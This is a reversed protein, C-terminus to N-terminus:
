PRTTLTGDPLPANAHAELMASQRDFADYGWIRAASFIPVTRALTLCDLFHRRTAGMLPIYSGRYTNAIIADVAEVGHLPAIEGEPAGEEARELLYIRDLPIPKAEPQDLTPVNYKDMDDFSLEYDGATRGSAELAERWLRLRPIGNHALPRGDPGITVVCVDDALIRYGRDLFWSAITSKGAGSHGMFAVARGDIEVANAHLPLLARQHLIAAFASGLLYLRLNRESGGPVPEVRLDRGDAMWYRGVEPIKLLAASGHVSLGDPEDPQVPVSGWGIEVDPEGPHVDPVLEPLAIQSRLRLGFLTYRYAETAADIV